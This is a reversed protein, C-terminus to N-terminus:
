RRANKGGAIQRAAKLIALRTEAKSVSAFLRALAAGSSLSMMVTAVDDRESRHKKLDPFFYTAPKGLAASISGLMETSVRSKGTEYKQLSQRSVVRGLKSILQDQSLGAEMRAARIMQGVSAGGHKKQVM